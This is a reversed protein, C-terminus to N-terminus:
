PKCIASYRIELTQVIIQGLRLDMENEIGFPYYGRQLYHNFLPLPHQINELKVENNIIQELTYVETDYNHFLKLSNAFHYDM